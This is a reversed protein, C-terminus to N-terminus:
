LRFMRRTMWSGFRIGLGPHLVTLLLIGLRAWDRRGPHPGMSRVFRWFRVLARGSQGKMRLRYVSGWAHPFHGDLSWSGGQRAVLYDRFREALEMDFLLRDSSIRATYGNRGHVRYFGLEEEIIGVETAAAVQVQLYYDARLPFIEEPIPGIREWLDRRIAWGSTPALYYVGRFVREPDLKGRSIPGLPFRGRRPRGQDDILRLPHQLAGCEPHRDIFEVCRALKDARWRDDADLLFLWEGQARSCAANLAAGQGRGELQLLEFGSLRCLAEYSGDVSGDDVVWCEFDRYTQTAVSDLAELVYAGYNRNTVIVSVRPM